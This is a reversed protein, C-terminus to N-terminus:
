RAETGASRDPASLVWTTTCRWSWVPVVVSSVVVVDVLEALWRPLPVGICGVSDRRRSHSAVVMVMSLSNGASPSEGCSGAFRDRLLAPTESPM